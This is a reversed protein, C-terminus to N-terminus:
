DATDSLAEEDDDREVGNEYRELRETTHRYLENLQENPLAFLISPYIILRADPASADSDLNSVLHYRKFLRIGDRLMTRDLILKAEIKLLSYKQQIEEALIVVDANVSLEKRKEVYLLRLILLLISEYKKLRIRGSGYVNTLGVVGQLENVLLHYGLFEFYEDFWARNQLIFMYDGRTDEKKKILFCSNLLKNAASRFKEKQVTSQLEIEM